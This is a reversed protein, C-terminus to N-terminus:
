GSLIECYEKVPPLGFERAYDEGLFCGFSTLTEFGKSKYFQVDQRLVEENLKLKKYPLKWGCFRSNDMWYELVQSNKAGFVKMLGDIHQVQERNKECNTDNIPLDSDRLIPAYELFIGECPDINRPPLMTDVYALYCHTANKNSTRIGALIHNYIIMAQDSPTLEKCKRCHCTARVDDIWFFYRDTTFPLKQALEVSREAVYELADNNSACMNFDNVREGEENMRFWDKHTSYLERNLLWSLAHFEYELEIGNSRMRRAFELFADTKVFELMNNLTEAAKVGGRPHIGVLNLGSDILIDAWYNGVEEPHILIGRKHSLYIM